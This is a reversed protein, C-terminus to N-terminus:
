PCLTRRTTHLHVTCHLCRLHVTASDLSTPAEATNCLLSTARCSVWASRTREAKHKSIYVFRPGEAGGSCLTRVHLRTAKLNVHERIASRWASPSTVPKRQLFAHMCLVLFSYNFWVRQWNIIAKCVNKPSIIKLSICYSFAKCDM